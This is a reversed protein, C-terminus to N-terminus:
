GRQHRYRREIGYRASSAPRPPSRTRDAAAIQAPSRVSSWIRVEDVDGQFSGAAVGAKTLASGIASPSEAAFAPPITAGLDLSSDQQGDVYLRWVQGDYTVALHHWVNTTIVANGTMSHNLGIAGPGSDDEEFDAVLQQSSQDIGLIYNVNQTNNDDVDSRGKSILPIIDTIGGSGTSAIAGGGNWKFWGELTFQTAQLDAAAGLRRSGRERRGDM